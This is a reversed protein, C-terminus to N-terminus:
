DARRWQLRVDGSIPVPEGDRVATGSFSFAVFRGELDVESVDIEGSEIELRRGGELEFSMTAGPCAGAGFTGERGTENVTVTVHVARVPGSPLRGTATLRVGACPTGDLVQTIVASPPIALFANGALGTAAQGLQVQVGNRAAQANVYGDAVALCGVVALLMGIGLALQSSLLRHNRM